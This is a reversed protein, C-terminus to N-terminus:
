RLIVIHEAILHMQPYQKWAPTQFQWIKFWTTSDWSKVERTPTPILKWATSSNTQEKHMSVDTWPSLSHPEVLFDSETGGHVLATLDFQSQNSKWNLLQLFREIQNSVFSSWCDHFFTSWNEFSTDVIFAYIGLLGRSSETKHIKWKKQRLKVNKKNLNKYFDFHILFRLLWKIRNSYSEIKKLLFM